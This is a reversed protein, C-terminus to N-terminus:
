FFMVENEKDSMSGVQAMQYTETKLKAWSQLQDASNKELGFTLPLYFIESLFNTWLFFVLTEM